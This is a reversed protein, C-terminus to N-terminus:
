SYIKKLLLKRRYMEEDAQHIMDEISLDQGPEYYFLGYSISIPYPKVNLPHNSTLVSTIEEWLREIEELPKHPFVVIFEDGGYRFFIDQEEIHEKIVQCTRKILFDGEAHGYQDNVMKLNNVDVFCLTFPFHDEKAKQHLEKLQIIGSRRNYVGTLIDTSAHQILEAEFKKLESIDTVGTLICKENRYDILQYNLIVWILKGSAVKQEIIHNKKYGNRNLEEILPIRDKDNKYFDIATYKHVDERAVGYFELAKENVEVIRGDVASTLLLPFPNIDFLKKFNKEQERLKVKNYFANRRFTYFAFSILYAVLVTTTANTQKTIKILEDELIFSLGIHFSLYTLLYIVFLHLPKIHLLVAIGIIITTYVDINGTLKQNNLSSTVGLMAYIIIYFNILFTASKSEIFTKSKKVNQYIFYYILSFLFSVFHIVILNLRFSSDHIDRLLIVDAIIYYIYIFILTISVLNIRKLLQENNHKQFENDDIAKSNNYFVIIKSKLELYKNVFIKM